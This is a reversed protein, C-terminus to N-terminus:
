QLYSDIDDLIGVSGQPTEQTAPPDIDSYVSVWNKMQKIKNKAVKKTDWMKPFLNEFYKREADTIRKDAMMSILMYNSLNKATQYSAKEPSLNANFPNLREIPTMDEWLKEVNSLQNVFKNGTEKIENKKKQATKEAATPQGYNVVNLLSGYKSANKLAQPDKMAQMQIAKTLLSNLDYGGGQDMGTNGTNMGGLQQGQPQVAQQDPVDIFKKQSTSYIRAM